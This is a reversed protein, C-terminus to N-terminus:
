SRRFRHTPHLRGSRDETYIRGGVDTDNGVTISPDGYVGNRRDIEPFSVMAPGRGAGHPFRFYVYCVPPPNTGIAGMVISRAVFVQFAGRPRRLGHEGVPQYPGRPPAASTRVSENARGNWDALCAAVGTPRGVPPATDAPRSSGGGACGALPAVALLALPWWRM